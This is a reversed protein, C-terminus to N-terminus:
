NNCNSLSDFYPYFCIYIYQKADYSRLFFLVCDDMSIGNFFKYCYLKFFKPGLFHLSFESRHLTFFNYSYYNAVMFFIKKDMSSILQNASPYFKNIVRSYYKVSIAYQLTSSSVLISICLIFALSLNFSAFTFLIIAAAPFCLNLLLISVLYYFLPNSNFFLFISELLNILDM